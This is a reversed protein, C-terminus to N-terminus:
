MAEHSINYWFFFGRVIAAAYVYDTAHIRNM